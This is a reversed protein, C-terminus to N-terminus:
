EWDVASRCVRSYSASEQKFYSVKNARRSIRAVYMCPRIWTKTLTLLHPALPMGKNTPEPLM